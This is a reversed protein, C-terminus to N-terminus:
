QRQRYGIDAFWFLKIFNVKTRFTALDKQEFGIYFLMQMQM